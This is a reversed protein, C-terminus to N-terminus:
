VEVVYSRNSDLGSEWYVIQEFDLYTSNDNLKTVKAQSREAADDASWIRAEKTQHDYNVAGWIFFASANNVTFTVSAGVG